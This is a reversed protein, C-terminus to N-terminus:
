KSYILHSTTFLLPISLKLLWGSHVKVATWQKIIYKIKKQSGKEAGIVREALKKLM